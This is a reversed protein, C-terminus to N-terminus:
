GKGLRRRKKRAKIGKSPLLFGSDFPLDILAERGCHPCIIEVETDIGCEHIDFADRMDEADQSTLGDFTKSNGNNGDIWDLIDRRPIDGVDLIRSRMTCSMPRGPNQRTLRELNEETRGDALTFTVAKNDISCEFPIKASIYEADEPELNRRILDNDLNIEYAFTGCSGSPCEIEDLTYLNGDRYSIKRLEIMLAFKDGMLLDRTKPKAGDDIDQYPGTDVWGILCSDLIDNLVRNQNKGRSKAAQALINEERVLLQRLIVEAGSPLKINKQHM